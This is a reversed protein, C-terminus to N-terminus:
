AIGAELAIKDLIATSFWGVDRLTELARALKEADITEAEFLDLLLAPTGVLELDLVTQKSRVNDDDTALLDADREWYLAVAEAEGGQINYQRARRLLETTEVEYVEIWGDDIVEAILTADPYGHERGADVTEQKVRTPIAVDGFHGCATELLTLKTLHILVMADKVVLM